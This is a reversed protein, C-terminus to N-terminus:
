ATRPEFELATDFLAIINEPPVNAQINHVSAFVHGGGLSLANLHRRADEVVQSPTGRTLIEQCDCSGGWFCLRRGFQRKLLGPDMGNATTQVPNLIDVGM